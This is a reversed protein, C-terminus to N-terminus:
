ERVIIVGAENADAYNNYGFIGVNAFTYSFYGGPEVTGVSDFEATRRDSQIQAVVRIPLYSDNRFRVTDGTHIRLNTPSFVGFRYSVTYIRVQREPTGSSTPSLVTLNGKSFVSVAVALLVMVIIIIPWLHLRGSPEPTQTSTLFAIPDDTM